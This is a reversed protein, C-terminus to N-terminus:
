RVHAEELAAPRIVAIIRGLLLHGGAGPGVRRVADVLFLPQLQVAGFPLRQDVADVGFMRRFLGRPLAAGVFFPRPLIGGGRLGGEACGPSPSWTCCPPPAAGGASEELGEGRRPPPRSAPPSRPSPSEARSPPFGGVGRRLFPFVWHSHGLGRRLRAPRGAVRMGLRESQRA